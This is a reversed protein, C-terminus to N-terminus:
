DRIDIETLVADFDAQDVDRAELLASVLLCGACSGSSVRAAAGCIPCRLSPAGALSGNDFLTGAIM